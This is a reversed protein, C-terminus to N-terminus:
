DNEDRVMGGYDIIIREAPIDAMLLMEQVKTAITKNKNVVRVSFIDGKSLSYTTDTPVQVGDPFLKEMIDSTYTMKHHKAYDHQFSTMDVPDTYVPEVREHRHEMLIDYKNGTANLANTFQLYMVPTVYGLNRVADVFETTEKFVFVRTMDDQRTLMNEVPFIYLLLIALIFAIMKSLTESLIM